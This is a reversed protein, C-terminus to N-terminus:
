LEPNCGLDIYPWHLQNDRFRFMMEVQEKTNRPTSLPPLTELRFFGADTTEYGTQLTADLIRCEIFIKYAYHVDPPHNHCKKDFIALLRVPEVKVGAEERTEKVAIEAPTFGVDAWGGPLSWKGDVQEKVMLLEEEQNFVVARVDVKSTRYGNKEQISTSVQSIVNQTILSIMEMAIQELETYRDMDYDTESFHQGTEALAQVRKAYNLLLSTNSM